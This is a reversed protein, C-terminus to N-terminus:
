LVEWTANCVGTPANLTAGVTAGVMRVVFWNNPAFITADGAVSGTSSAIITAQKSAAINYTTGIKTTTSYQTTDKALDVIVASTTALDFRIGASRLTSTAAPAQLACVTSSGQILNRTSAAYVKVDGFSLYPSPIDPGTLAGTQKEVIKEVTKGKSSVVGVVVLALVVLATLISNKMNM